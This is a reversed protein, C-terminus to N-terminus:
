MEFMKSVIEFNITSHFTYIKNSVLVVFHGGTYCAIDRMFVDNLTTIKHFILELNCLYRM